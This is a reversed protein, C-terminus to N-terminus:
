NKPAAAPVAPEGGDAKGQVPAFDPAPAPAEAKEKPADEPKKVSEPHKAKYSAMIENTLDLEEAFDFVLADNKLLVMKFGKAKAVERAIPKFLDRLEGIVSARHANLALDAQRQAKILQIEVARQLEAAKQARDKDQSDIKAEQARMEDLLSTKYETLEKVLEAQKAKVKEQVASMLNAEETIRNIDFVAIRDSPAPVSPAQGQCGTFLLPAAALALILNKNM